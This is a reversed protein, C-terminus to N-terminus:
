GCLMISYNIRIMTKNQKKNRLNPNVIPNVITRCLTERIQVLLLIAEQQKTKPEFLNFFNDWSGGFNNSMGTTKLSEFIIM